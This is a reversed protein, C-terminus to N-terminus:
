GKVAGIVTGRILYKQLFPYVILVPLVGIVAIAMRVSTGPMAAGGASIAGAAAGSNLYQIKNMIKLLLNQISYLSPDNIYYLGNIWDNWYALGTFLGVTAIVPVSLPLMIKGFILTESAGDIRAAEVLEDPISNSFFNRILLIYFGSMLYTPIMLALLSDKIHLYRSWMIYSPVIGGSFLMTFFVFFSFFNRYKFDRRSLPYAFLTSLILSLCTGSATVFISVGYARLLMASQRWLYSYAALSTKRPVFRYGEALLVHEDTISAMIILVIPLISIASLIGLSIYTFVRFAKESNIKKKMNFAM